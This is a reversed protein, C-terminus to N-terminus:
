PLSYVCTPLEQDDLFYKEMQKSLARRQAACEGEPCQCWEGGGEGEFDCRQPVQTRMKDSLNVVNV